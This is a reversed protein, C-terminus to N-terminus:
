FTLSFEMYCPEATQISSVKQVFGYSDFKSDLDIFRLFHRISPLMSEGIHYRFSVDINTVTGQLKVNELPNKGPSSM